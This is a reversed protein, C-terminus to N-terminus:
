EFEKKVDDSEVSQETREINKRKQKLYSKFTPRTIEMTDPDRARIGKWMKFYHVIQGGTFGLDEFM